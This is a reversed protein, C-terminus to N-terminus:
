RVPTLGLSKGVLSRQRAALADAVGLLAVAAPSDPATLVV